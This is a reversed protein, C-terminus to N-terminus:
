VRFIPLMVAAGFVLPSLYRAKTWGGHRTDPLGLHNEKTRTATGAWIAQGVCLRNSWDSCKRLM